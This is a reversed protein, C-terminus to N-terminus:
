DLPNLVKLLPSLFFFNDRSLDPTVEIDAFRKIKM